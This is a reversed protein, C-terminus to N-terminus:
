SSLTPVQNRAAYVKLAEPAGTMLPLVKMDEWSAWLCGTHEDSLIVPHREKVEVKFLHYVYSLTSKRMYLTGILQFASPPLAIGTEEFLERQAAAEKAEGKELKGAPVGWTGVEKKSPGLQLLLLRGGSELYCASVEVDPSFGTPPTEYAELIQM